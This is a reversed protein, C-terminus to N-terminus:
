KNEIEIEKLINYYSLKSNRYESRINQSDSGMIIFLEKNLPYAFCTEESCFDRIDKELMFEEVDKYLEEDGVKGISIINCISAKFNKEFDERNLLDKKLYIRQLKFDLQKSVEICRPEGFIFKDKYVIYISLDNLKKMNRLFYMTKESIM